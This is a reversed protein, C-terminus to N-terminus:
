KKLFNLDEPSLKALPVTVTEGNRKRLVVQSDTVEVAVADVKFKGTSDTWTRFDGGNLAERLESETVAHLVTLAMTGRDPLPVTETGAVFVPGSTVRQGAALGSTSKVWLLFPVDDCTIVVDHKNFPHVVVANTLFGITSEARPDVPPGFRWLLNFLSDNDLTAALGARTKKLEDVISQQDAVIEEKMRQSSFYYKDGRATDRVAYQGAGVASDVQGRKLESLKKDAASIERRLKKELDSYSRRGLEVYDALAAIPVPGREIMEGSEPRADDLDLKAVTDALARSSKGQAEAVAVRIDTVSIGFNLNQARGQSALTSMAVVEGRNNILPGGSNGPSLAADVQIWTGQLSNRGIDRALEDGSRIASIIGRTASFSLGQPSGLAAVSEGKRPLGSALPLEPLGTADIQAVCIDRASDLSYIGTVKFSSGDPFIATAARAGAMVHVNTVLMGDARVIFGSGLGGGRNGDVEIRVVSKECREIMDAFEDQGQVRPVVTAAAGCIWALLPTLIWTLKWDRRSM